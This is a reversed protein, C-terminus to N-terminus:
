SLPVSVFIKACDTITDGRLTDSDSGSDNSFNKEDLNIVESKPAQNLAKKQERIALFDSLRARVAAMINKHSNKKNNIAVDARAAIEDVPMQANIRMEAEQRTIKDRQTLRWVQRSKNLYVAWIEDVLFEWGAEFLLPIELVVLEVGNEACEVLFDRTRNLIVPHAVSNVWLREPENNFIIDAILKRDLEGYEDIVIEGFHRVYDLYLEGGRQLLEHTIKDVDFTKAGLRELTSAVASKGCAIGGTLGIIYM